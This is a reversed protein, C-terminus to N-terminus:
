EAGKSLTELNDIATKSVAHVAGGIAVSTITAGTKGNISDGEKMIEWRTAEAKRGTYWDLYKNGIIGSKQEAGSFLDAITKQQKRDTVVTGLGPTESAATVLVTGVTGDPQLGVMMAINGDGDPFGEPTVVKGAYGVIESGKRATYYTVEWGLASKFTQVEEGPVNDFEPLVQIIAADASAKQNALIQPTTVVNVISLLGAALAAIGGLFAGLMPINIKQGSM